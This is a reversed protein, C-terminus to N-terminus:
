HGSVPPRRPSVREDLAKITGGKAAVYRGEFRRYRAIRRGGVFGSLNPGM